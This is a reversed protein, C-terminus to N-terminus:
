SVKIGKKVLRSNVAEKVVCYLVSCVPVGFLMGLIGFLSGGVTVTVLVWIGPLGVSKGVVRPYIINGELQQLVIIFVIFGLAQVPNVVVIFFAGIATGFFAGFIPILASFGVLVSIVAAYPMRLILMGVFCLAGIIVAETLQGTVFNTFTRNALSCLGFFREVREAPLLAMFLKRAQLGLKEKQLLVYIAFVLALLVNVITSFISATIGVTTNLFIGGSTAVFDTIKKGIESGKLDMEPLVIAYEELLESMGSWWEMVRNAYQPVMEWIALINRKLEPIVMFLMIFIVGIILILSLILSVPRKLKSEGKKGKKSKKSKRLSLKDWLQEIKKMLVNIMFAFCLGLLFPAIVGVLSGLVNFIVELHNIGWFILLAGTVMWMIKKINSKNLEM